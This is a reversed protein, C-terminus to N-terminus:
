QGERRPKKSEASAAEAKAAAGDTWTDKCQSSSAGAEFGAEATAASLPSKKHKGKRAGRGAKGAAASPDYERLHGFTKTLWARCAESSGHPHVLQWAITRDLIPKVAPGPYIGLLQSVEDGDVLAKKEWADHVDLAQMRSLFVEWRRVIALGQEGVNRVVVEGTHPEQGYAVHQGLVLTRALALMVSVLYSAYVPREALVRVLQGLVLRHQSDRRPEGVDDACDLDHLASSISVRMSRIEVDVTGSDAPRNVYEVAQEVLDLSELAVRTWMADNNTLKVSHKLIDSTVPTYADPKTKSPVMAYRTFPLLSAAICSHRRSVACTFAETGMLRAITPFERHLGEAVHKTLWKYTASSYVCLTDDMDPADVVRRQELDYVSPPLQFVQNYIGYAHILSIALNPNPGKFMKDLETGIRERSIKTALATKIEPRLVAEKIEDVLEFGFRSAFRIARLIRLPDDRFTEYAPLPTRIIRQQMDSLGRETFDEVQRTAVNYFLANITCDRRRADETPSGFTINSPVRSDESYVESRLNVFDVHMGFFKATATELHKSKDPNSSIKAIQVPILADEADVQMADHQSTGTDTKRAAHHHAIYGNVAQAFEYGMMTDLAVDMDDCELGLLKDRVWGGAIRCVVTKNHQDRLYACTHDLLTCLQAESENLQVLGPPPADRSATM